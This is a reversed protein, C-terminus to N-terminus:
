MGTLVSSKRIGVTGLISLVLFFEFLLSILSTIGTTRVASMWAFSEYANFSPGNISSRAGSIMICNCLVEVFRQGVPELISWEASASTHKRATM